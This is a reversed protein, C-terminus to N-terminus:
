FQSSFAFPAYIVAGNIVGGSGPFTLSKSFDTNNNDSPGGDGWYNGTMTVRNSEGGTYDVNIGSYPTRINGNTISLNNATQDASIVVNTRNHTIANHDFVTGVQGYPIDVGKNFYHVHLGGFINGEKASAFNVGVSDSSTAVHWSGNSYQVQKGHLVIDDLIANNADITIGTKYNKISLDEIEVGDAQITIGTINPSSFGDLTTAYRGMGYIKLQKDIVAGNDNFTGAFVKITDGVNAENVAEQLPTHDDIMYLKNNDNLARLSYKAGAFEPYEDMMALAGYVDNIDKLYGTHTKNTEVDFYRLEFSFLSTSFTINEIPYPNAPDNYNGDQTYLRNTGGFLNTNYFHVGDVGGDHWRGSSYIAVGYAGNDHVNINKFVINNSDSLQMGGLDAGYAETNEIRVNSVGNMDIGARGGIITANVVHFDDAGSAKVTYIGSHGMVTMNMLWVGDTEVSVGRWDSSTADLVVGERSQGIVKMNSGLELAHDIVYTGDNVVIETYGRNEAADVADQIQCFPAETQLDADCDVGNDVLYGPTGVANVPATSMVGFLATTIVFVAIALINIITRKYM